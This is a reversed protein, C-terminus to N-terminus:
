ADVVNVAHFGGAFYRVRWKTTVVTSSAPHTASAAPPAWLNTITTRPEDCRECLRTVIRRETDQYTFPRGYHHGGTLKCVIRKM